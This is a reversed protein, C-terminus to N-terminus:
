MGRAARAVGLRVVGLTRRGLVALHRRRGRVRVELVGVVLVGVPRLVDGGLVRDVLRAVVAGRVGRRVVVLRLLRQVAPRGLRGVSGVRPHPRLGRRGLRVTRCLVQWVPVVRAGRLVHAHVLEDAAAAPLLVGECVEEAVLLLATHERVRRGAVPVGRLVRGPLLAGPLGLTGSRYGSGGGRGRAVVRAGGRR